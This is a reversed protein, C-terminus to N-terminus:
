YLFSLIPSLILELQLLYAVLQHKARDTFRDMQKLIDVHNM